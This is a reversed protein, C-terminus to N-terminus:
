AKLEAFDEESLLFELEALEEDTKIEQPVSDDGQGPVTEFRTLYGEFGFWTLDSNPHVIEHSINEVGDEEPNLNGM